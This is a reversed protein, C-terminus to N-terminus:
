CERASRVVPPTPPTPTPAPAPTEVKYIAFLVDNKCGFSVRDGVHFDGLKPSEAGLSCTVDGGDTHM